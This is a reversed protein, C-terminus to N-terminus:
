GGRRGHTRTTRDLALNRVGAQVARWRVADLDADGRHVVPAGPGQQRAVQPSNGRGTAASRGEVTRMNSLHNSDWRM